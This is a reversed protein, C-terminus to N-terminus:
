SETTTSSSDGGVIKPNVSTAVVVNPAAISSDKKESVRHSARSLGTLAFPQMTHQTTRTEENLTIRFEPLPIMVMLSSNQLEKFNLWPKVWLKAEYLKKKEPDGLASSTDNSLYMQVSIWLIAVLTSSSYGCTFSFPIQGLAVILVCPLVHISSDRIVQSSGMMSSQRSGMRYWSGIYCADEESLFEIFGYGQHLNTMRDVHCAQVLLEWLFEESLQPGLNGVYVTAEQNREASHQGLLNFGVGPYILTTTQKEENTEAVEQKRQEEKSCNLNCLLTFFEGNNYSQICQFFNLFLPNFTCHLSSLPILPNQKNFAM